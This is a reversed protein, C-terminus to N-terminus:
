AFPDHPVTYSIEIEVDPFGFQELSIYEAMGDYVGPSIHHIVQISHEIYGEGHCEMCRFSSGGCVPCPTHLLPSLIHTQGIRAEEPSLVIEPKKLKQMQSM